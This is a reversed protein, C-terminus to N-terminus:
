IQQHQVFNEVIGVFGIGTARIRDVVHDLHSMSTSQVDRVVLSADLTEHAFPGYWRRTATLMPGTDLLVLRYKEALTRLMARRPGDSGRDEVTNAHVHAGANLPVITIADDVSAVAVEELYERTPEGDIWSRTDLLGLQRALEPNEVDGDVIAVSHGARAAHQALLLAFLTRGEGRECSTVAVVNGTLRHHTVLRSVLQDLAAVCHATLTAIRDPWRFRDVEWQPRFPDLGAPRPAIAAEVSGQVALEAPRAAAPAVDAGSPRDRGDPWELLHPHPLLVPSPEDRRATAVHATPRSEFDSYPPEGDVVHAEDLTASQAPEAHDSNSTADILQSVGVYITEVRFSRATPLRHSLSTASLRESEAPSDVRSTTHLGAPTHTPANRDSQVHAAHRLTYLGTLSVRQDALGTPRSLRPSPQPESLPGRAASRAPRGVAVALEEAYAKIFANDSASM